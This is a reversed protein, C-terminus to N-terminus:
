EFIKVIICSVNDREGAERVENVLKESLKQMQRNTRVKKMRKVLEGSVLNHFFGDSGLLYVDNGCVDGQLHNLWLEMGKGMFNALKARVRGNDMSLNVEDRTLISLEDRLCGIRSDGVHFTYYRHPTVLLTSMTCGIPVQKEKAWIYILENAERITNDLEEVLEDEFNTSKERKIIWEYWEELAQVVFESAIESHEMSGIGDCICAIVFGGKGSHNFRYFIRDQNKKRYKGQDSLYGVISKM